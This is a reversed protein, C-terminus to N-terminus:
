KRVPTCVAKTLLPLGIGIPLENTSNLAPTPGPCADQM